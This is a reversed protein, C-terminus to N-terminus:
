FNVSLSMTYSRPTRVLTQGNYPDVGEPDINKSNRAWTFVNNKLTVRKGQASAQMVFAFLCCLLLLVKKRDRKM